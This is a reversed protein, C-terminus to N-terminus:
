PMRCRAQVKLNLLVSSWFKEPCSTKTSQWRWNERMNMHFKRHELKHGNGRTRKSPVVSFFRAGHSEGVCVRVKLHIYTNILHGRLRRWASCDWTEWGKRMCSIRWTGWWRPPGRSFERWVNGMMRSCSFGPYIFFLSHFISLSSDMSIVLCLSNEKFNEILLLLCYERLTSFTSCSGEPGSTVM